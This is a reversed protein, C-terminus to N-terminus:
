AAREVNSRGRLRGTVYRNPRDDEILAAGHDTLTDIHSFAVTVRGPVRLHDRQTRGRVGEPTPPQVVASQDDRQLRAGHAGTRDHQRANLPQHECRDVLLRAGDPRQPVHYAVT